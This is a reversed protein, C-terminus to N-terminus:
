DKKDSLQKAANELIKREKESLNDYGVENIRDLVRDVEDMLEAARRNQAMMQKAIKKQRIRRFPNKFGSLHWDQKLYLYGILAGSLHTFHAITTDTQSWAAIVGLGIMIMVLYKAKIPVFFPFTLIKRDPYVVAFAVLVGYIAGSAGITPINSDLQLLFTLIGAGIGTIFYFKLFERTGWQRELDRGFMYLAISNFFIHFFGGHLFMYTVFQWIMFQHVIAYPVLGFTKNIPLSAFASQLLFIIANAALIYLIGRPFGEQMSYSNWSNQQKRYM